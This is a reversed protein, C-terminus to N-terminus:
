NERSVFPFLRLYPFVADNQWPAVNCAVDSRRAVDSPRAVALM